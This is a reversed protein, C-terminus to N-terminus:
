KYKGIEANFKAMKAQFQHETGKDENADAWDRYEKILRTQAHQTPTRKAM